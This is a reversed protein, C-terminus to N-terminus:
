WNVEQVKLKVLEENAQLFCNNHLWEKRGAYAGAIPHEAEIVPCEDAILTKYAQAQKGWLLYIVPKHGREERQNLAFIVEQTFPLWQKVHSGAEGKRVTLATNLLLVGEEVAWRSFNGSLIDTSFNRPYQKNYGSIIRDASPTVKNKCDFALGTSNGDHYPMKNDM